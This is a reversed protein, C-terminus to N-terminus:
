SADSVRKRKDAELIEFRFVAKIWWSLAGVPGCLYGISSIKVMWTRTKYSDSKLDQQRDNVALFYDDHPRNHNYKNDSIEELSSM